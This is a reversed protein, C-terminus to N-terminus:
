SKVRAFEAFGRLYQALQDQARGDQIAGSADFAERAKSVLGRGGCYPSAGMAGMVPLWASRSVQRRGERLDRSDLSTVM